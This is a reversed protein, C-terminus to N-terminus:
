SASNRKHESSAEHERVEQLMETKTKANDNDVNCDRCHWEYKGRYWASDDSSM